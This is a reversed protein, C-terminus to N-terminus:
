YSGCEDGGRDDSGGGEALTSLYGAFGSPARAKRRASTRVPAHASRLIRVGPQREARRVFDVDEGSRLPSWGGLWAYVDARVGLNAGHVHPHGDVYRHRSRWVRLEGRTLGATPCVMGAVLHYGRVAATVFHALWGAPVETDADTSALWVRDLSATAEALAVAVGDRRAAGVNRHETTVITAGMEAAISATRDTCADTVVVVRCRAAAARRSLERRAGEVSHLCRELLTQENHAPVVVCLEEIVPGTGTPSTGGRVCGHSRVEATTM